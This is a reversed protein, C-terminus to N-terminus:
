LHLEYFILKSVTNLEIKRIESESFPICHSQLLYYNIRFLIIRTSITALEPLEVNYEKCLRKLTNELAERTQYKM